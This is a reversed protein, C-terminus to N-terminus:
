IGPIRFRREVARVLLMIVGIIVTALTLWLTTWAGEALLPWYTILTEWRM